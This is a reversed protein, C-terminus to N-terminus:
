AFLIARKIHIFSSQIICLCSFECVKFVVRYSEECNTVITCEAEREIALYIGHLLLSFWFLYRDLNYFVVLLVLEFVHVKGTAYFLHCYRRTTFLYSKNYTAIHKYCRYLIACCATYGICGVLFAIYRVAGISSRNKISCLAISM